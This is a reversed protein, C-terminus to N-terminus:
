LKVDEELDLEVVMVFLEVLDCCICVVTDDVVAVGIRGVALGDVMDALVVVMCWNVQMAVNM